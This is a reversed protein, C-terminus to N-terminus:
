IDEMGEHLGGGGEERPGDCQFDALDYYCLKKGHSLISATRREGNLALQLIQSGVDGSAPGGLGEQVRECVMQVTSGSAQAQAREAQDESVEEADSYDLGQFDIFALYCGRSNDGKGASTGGDVREKGGQLLLLTLLRDDFFDFDVISHEDGTRSPDGGKFHEDILRQLDILSWSIRAQRGFGKRVMLLHTPINRFGHFGNRDDHIPGSRHVQPTPGITTPKGCPSTCGPDDKSTSLESEMALHTLALELVETLSPSQDIGKQHLNEEGSSDSTQLSKQPDMLSAITQNEFGRSLYAAVSLTDYNPALRPDELDQKLREQRERELRCWRHFEDLEILEASIAKEARSAKQFCSRLKQKALGVQEKAEELDPFLVCTREHWLIFGELDALLVLIRDCAPKVSQTILHRVNRFSSLATNELKSLVGQTLNGLLLQEAPLGARGTLLATLLEHRMDCAYKRELDQCLKSWESIFNAKAEELYIRQASMASDLAYGVLARFLNSLISLHSVTRLTSSSEQDSNSKGSFPTSYSLGIITLGQNIGGSPNSGVLIASVGDLNRSVISSRSNLGLGNECKTTAVKSAGLYATGELLCHLSGRQDTATLMSTKSDDRREESYADADGLIIGSDVGDIPLAPMQGFPGKGSIADLSPLSNQTQAQQGRAMQQLRLQHPMLKSAAATGQPALWKSISPLPSLSLAADIASGKMKLNRHGGLTEIGSARTWSLTNPCMGLQTEGVVNEESEESTSLRVTSKLSGDHVSFTLVFDFSRISKGRAKAQADETKRELTLFIAFRRGDPSWAVDKVHARETEAYQAKFHEPLDPPAIEVEWAKSSDQGLRWLAVKPPPARTVQPISPNSSPGAQGTAGRLAAQRALIRQRIAIQAASLGPPGSQPQPQIENQFSFTLALDMRPNLSNKFVHSRTPLEFSALLAFPPPTEPNPQDDHPSHQM